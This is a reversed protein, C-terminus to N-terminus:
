TVDIVVHPPADAAGPPRTRFSVRDTSADLPPTDSWDAEWRGPRPAGMAKSMWYGDTDIRENLDEHDFLRPGVHNDPGTVARRYSQFPFDPKAADPTRLYGMRVYFPLADPVGKLQVVDAGVSRALREVADMLERGGGDRASGGGGSCILEVVMAKSHTTGDWTLSVIAFGHPSATAGKCLIVTMRSQLDRHLMRISQKYAETIRGQCATDLLGQYRPLSNSASFVRQTGSVYETSWLFDEM